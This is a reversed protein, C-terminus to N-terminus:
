IGLDLLNYDAIDERAEENWLLSQNALPEYHYPTEESFREARASIAYGILKSRQNIRQEDYIAAASHISNGAVGLM